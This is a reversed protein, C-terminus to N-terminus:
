DIRRLHDKLIYNVDEGGNDNRLTVKYFYRYKNVGTIYLTDGKNVYSDVASNKNPQLYCAADKKLVVFTYTKSDDLTSTQSGSGGRSSDGSGSANQSRKYGIYLFIIGVAIITLWFLCCMGKRMTDGFDKGGFIAGLIIALTVIIGIEM